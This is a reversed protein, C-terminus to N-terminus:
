SSTTPRVSGTQHFVALGRKFESEAKWFAEVQAMALEEETKVGHIVRDIYATRKEEDWRRGHWM